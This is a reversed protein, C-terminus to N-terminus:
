GNERCQRLVKANASGEGLGQKHSWSTPYSLPGPKTLPFFSSGFVTTKLPAIGKSGFGNPKTLFGGTLEEVEPAM